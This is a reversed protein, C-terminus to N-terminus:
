APRAVDFAVTLREGDQFKRTGHWMSSPFLVLRGVKPEILRFPGLEPVLERNEGLGLWGDHDSEGSGAGMSGEPLSIYLASSLWGQQHVHDVHMGQSTLRVSWSGAFRIPRRQATLLPHGAEAAPLQTIHQKVVDVIAHRLKRIEPEMRAFLPGDTQTGLRLSQDPPQRDAIHLNRLVAALRTIDGLQNGLDYIGIFRSDGELWQWRSDGTLRWALALYPWLLGEPDKGIWPEGIQAALDPRGARLQHRVYRYARDITDPGGLVAFLRDASAVDGSETACYAEWEAIWAFDPLKKRALALNSAAAAFDNVEFNSAVLLQYLSPEDVLQSIAAKITDTYGSGDNMQSRIKVFSRHGDLWLPNSKLLEVLESIATDARHEAVLAAARGLLVEGNQPALESAKKYLDSAVRGAEQTVRALSHAILPDQPALRAANNFATIARASNELRRSALGLMQWLHADNPHRQVSQEALSLVEEVRDGRIANIGVAFINQPDSLDLAKIAEEIDESNM